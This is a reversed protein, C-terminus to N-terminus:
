DFAVSLPNDKSNRSKTQSRHHKQTLIQKFYDSEKEEGKEFTKDVMNITNLQKSLKPDKETSKAANNILLLNHKIQQV